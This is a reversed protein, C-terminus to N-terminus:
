FHCLLAIGGLVSNFFHGLGKRVGGLAFLSIPLIKYRGGLYGVVCVDNGVDM